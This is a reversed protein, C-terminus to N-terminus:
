HTNLKNMAAERGEKILIELGATVKKFVKKLALKEAPKFEGLIFKQVKEEGSIKKM